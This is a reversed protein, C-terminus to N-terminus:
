LYKSLEDMKDENTELIENLNNIHKKSGNAPTNMSHYKSSYCLRSKLYNFIEQRKKSASDSVDIIIKKIQEVNIKSDHDFTEYEKSIAKQAEKMDLYAALEWLVELEQM